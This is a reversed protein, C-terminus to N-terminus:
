DHGMVRREERRDLQSLRLAIAEIVENVSIDGLCWRVAHCRRKHACKCVPWRSVTVDDPAWPGNRAPDTPGYLGVIPTGRAAALHLPGTDGSVVLAATDLLSVLEALRTPPAPIAFGEASAVIRAALSDEGPGWLVISRLGWRAGIRTALLAFREAPWRKNPWAAGPNLAVFRQGPALDLRQRVSDVISSESVELPFVLTTSTGGAAAALALNKHVVHRAPGPDVVETYFVSAARERLHPKTLGLVRGAGSARALVASKILGQLDFAVDYRERRLRKIVDLASAPGSWRRTDIAIREDLVPVLDLVPRHRVDVLWDIRADPHRARLAAAVPLAHVIDGLAGLRVLLYRPM